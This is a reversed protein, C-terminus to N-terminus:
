TSIYLLLKQSELWHRVNSNVDNRLLKPDINSLVCTYTLMKWLYGQLWILAVSLAFCLVCSKLSIARFTCCGKWLFKSVHLWSLTLKANVSTVCPQTEFSSWYRGSCKFYNNWGHLLTEFIVQHGQFTWKLQAYKEDLRDKKIGKHFWLDQM